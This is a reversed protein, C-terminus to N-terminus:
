CRLLGHVRGGEDVEGGGGGGRPQMGQDGIMPEWEDQHSPAPVPAHRLGQGQSGGATGQVDDQRNSQSEQGIPQTTSPGFRDRMVDPLCQFHEGGGRQGEESEHVTRSRPEPFPSVMGDLSIGSRSDDAVGFPVMMM